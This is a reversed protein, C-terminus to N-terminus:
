AKEIEERSIQLQKLIARLTGEPIDGPHHPIAASRNVKPNHWIEHSGKSQRRFQCGLVQLKRVLEAYKM